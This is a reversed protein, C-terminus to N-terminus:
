GSVPVLRGHLVYRADQYDYECTSFMIYRGDGPTEVDAQVDSAKVAEELYGDFEPCPGTFITYSDSVAPTLHGGILEIRYNQAPTLLWMEPHADFFEQDAWDRLHAFMIGSKMNHGYIITNSDAFQPRNSADVFLTGATLYEGNYSHRLYYNNDEGQVLPYNINTDECYLWGVIDGCEALLADFDVKIPCDEGGASAEAEQRKIYNDAATEYLTSQEKYEMYYLVLRTVSYVFVALLAFMVVTRIRKKM